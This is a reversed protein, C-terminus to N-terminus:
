TGYKIIPLSSEEYLICYRINQSSVEDAGTLERLDQIMEDIFDEM